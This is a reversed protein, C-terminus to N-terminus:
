LLKAIRLDKFWAIRKLLKLANLGLINRKDEEGIKAYAVPGLGFGLNILNFDSGVMMTRSTGLRAVELEMARYDDCACTCDFINPHALALTNVDDSWHGSVFAVNPYKQAAWVLAESDQFEHTLFILRREDLLELVPQMWGDRMTYKPQRYVHMKVGLCRGLGLCRKLEAAARDPHNASLTCYPLVRDAAAGAFGFVVDNQAAVDAAYGPNSASPAALDCGYRDMQDVARRTDRAYPITTEPWFGFHGHVDIYLTEVPRGERVCDLITRM